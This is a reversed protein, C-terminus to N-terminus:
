TGDRITKKNCSKIGLEPVPVIVSFLPHYDDVETNQTTRFSSLRAAPAATPTGSARLCKSGQARLSLAHQVTGTTGTPVSSASHATKGGVEAGFDCKTGRFALEESHCV